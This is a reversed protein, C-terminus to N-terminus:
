KSLTLFGAMVAIPISCNGVCILLAIITSAKKILPTYRPHSFGLSQVLSWLGHSLHMCLLIMALIYFGSIYYNQFGTIVNYRVNPENEAIDKIPLVAGVTLHLVHFIIFAAVIPGSWLMTRAAYSTSADDKKKYAIPRAARNLNWLQISATIHVIVAGLLFARIAWLPVVNAPSHLFAAYRNIQNPDSAYIQLNGILHGVVYGFLIVGTIAMMVKKGIAAEYFRIVRQIPLAVTSM